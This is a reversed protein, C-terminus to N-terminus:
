YIEVAERYIVVIACGGDAIIALVANMATFYSTVNYHVILYSPNIKLPGHCPRKVVPVICSMFDVVSYFPGAECAMKVAM